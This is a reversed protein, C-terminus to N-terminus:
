GSQRAFPYTRCIVAGTTSNRRCRNCKPRHSIKASCSKGCSTSFVRSVRGQIKVIANEFHPNNVISSNKRLHNLPRDRTALEAILADFMIRSEFRNVRNEGAGQLKKSVSEFAGLRKKIEELEVCEEPTPIKTVVTPPFNQVGRALPGRLKEWALLMKYLSAWKAKTRRQPSIQVEDDAFCSRLIASNKITKLEGMLLDVKRILNQEESGDRTLEGGRNKREEPGLHAGVALALRHSECGPLPIGLRDCLARNTACNDAGYFEVVEHFNHVNVDIHYDGVLVNCMHDFNDEASLGFTRDEENM